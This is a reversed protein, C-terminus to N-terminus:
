LALTCIDKSIIKKICHSIKKTIQYHIKDFSNDEDLENLIGVTNIILDADKFLQNISREDKIDTRIIKLNPIMKLGSNSEINRTPIVIKESIPSLKTALQAGIFGTGGLIVVKSFKNM